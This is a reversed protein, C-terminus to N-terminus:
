SIFLTWRTYVGAQSFVKHTAEVAVVGAHALTIDDETSAVSATAVQEDKASPPKESLVVPHTAAVSM